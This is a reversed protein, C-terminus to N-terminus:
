PGVREYVFFKGRYIPKFEGLGMYVTATGSSISSSTIGTFSVNVSVRPGRSIVLLRFQGYVPDPGVDVISGDVARVLLEGAGIRIVASSSNYSWGSIPTSWDFWIPLRSEVVKFEMDGKAAKSEYLVSIWGDGMTIERHIRLGATRYDAMYENGHSSFSARGGAPSELYRYTGLVLLKDANRGERLLADFRVPSFEISVNLYSSPVWLILAYRDYAKHYILWHRSFGPEVSVIMRGHGPAIYSTWNSGVRLSSPVFDYPMWITVNCGIVKTRELEPVAHFSASASGNRIRYSADVSLSRTIYHAKVSGVGGSSSKRSCCTSEHWPGEAYGSVISLGKRGGDELGVGLPAIGSILISIRFNRSRPEAHVHIRPQKYLPHPGVLFDLGGMSRFTMRLPNIPNGIVVSGDGSSIKSSRAISWPIWIDADFSLIQNSSRVIYTINVDGDVVEVLRRTKLPGITLKDSGPGPHRWGGLAIKGGQVGVDVFSDVIELVPIGHAMSRSFVWDLFATNLEFAYYEGVQGRSKSEFVVDFTRDEIYITPASVIKSEELARSDRRYVVVASGTRLHHDDPLSCIVTPGGPEATNVTVRLHVELEGSDPRYGIILRDQGKPRAKEVHLVAGPAEVVLSHNGVDLLARDGDVAYWRIGTGFETWLVLTADAIRAGRYTTVNFEIEMTGGIIRERKRVDLWSNRSGIDVKLIGTSNDISRSIVAGAASEIWREGGRELLFRFHTIDLYILPEYIHGNWALLLPSRSTGSPADEALALEGNSIYIPYGISPCDDEVVGGHLADLWGAIYSPAVVERSAAVRSALNELDSWSYMTENRYVRTSAYYISSVLLLSLLLLTSANRRSSAPVMYLLSLLLALPFIPSLAILVLVQVLSRLKPRNVWWSILFAILFTASISWWIPELRLIIRGEFPLLLLGLGLGVSSSAIRSATATGRGGEVILRAVIAISALLALSPAELSSIAFLITSIASGRGEVELSALALSLLGAAMLGNLSGGVLSAIAIPSSVLAVSALSANLSSRSLLWSSAAVLLSFLVVSALIACDGDLGRAVAIKILWLSLSFRESGVRYLLDSIWPLAGEGLLLALMASSSSAIAVPAVSRAEM